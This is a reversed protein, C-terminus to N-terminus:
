YALPKARALPCFDVKTTVSIVAAYGTLWPSGSKNALSAYVMHLPPPVVVYYMGRWIRAIVLRDFM